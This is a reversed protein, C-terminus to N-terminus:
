KQKECMETVNTGMVLLKKSFHHPLHLRDSIQHSKFLFTTLFRCVPNCQPAAESFQGWDTIFECGSDESQHSNISELRPQKSIFWLGDPQCPLGPPQSTCILEWWVRSLFPWLWHGSLLRGARSLDSGSGSGSSHQGVSWNQIGACSCGPPYSPCVFLSISKPIGMNLLCGMRAKESEWKEKDM